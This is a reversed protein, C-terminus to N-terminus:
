ALLKLAQGALSDPTVTIRLVDDAGFDAGDAVQYGAEALVSLAQTKRGAPLRLALISTTQGELVAAGAAQAQQALASRLGALRDVRSAHSGEYLRGAELAGYQSATSTCIAMVQKQKQMPPIWSQPAAIYGIFWSSLGMGPFAEGILALNELRGAPSAAGNRVWPAEGQDWILGAGAAQVMDAIQQVEDASYAAGTLRSPSELYLLDCGNKLATEIASLTPLTRADDVALTEYPVPRVGLARLAGPHVVAPIAIRKKDILQITLFRSEQMGATVIINAAECGAGVHSALAERLPGIGPVDVYHTQGSELAAAVGAIIVEDLPAPIEDMSLDRAHGATLSPAPANLLANARHQNLIATKTGSTM